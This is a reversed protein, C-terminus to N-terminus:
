VDSLKDSTRTPIVTDMEIPENTVGSRKNINLKVSSFNPIYRKLPMAAVMTFCLLCMGIIIGVFFLITAAGYGMHQGTDCKCTQGYYYLQPQYDPNETYLDVSVSYEYSYKTAPSTYNCAFNFCTYIEKGDRYVHLMDAVEKGIMFVEFRVVNDCSGVESYGNFSRINASCADTPVTFTCILLVVPLVAPFSVVSQKMIISM